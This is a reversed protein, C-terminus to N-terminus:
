QYSIDNLYFTVPQGKSAATWAFGTIIDTMNKGALSISYPKWQKTLTVNSLSGSASDHNPKGAGILGFLFSVVEGGKAGRAWFTLKKAGTLNLGGAATGWDNAPDQWVVGGWGKSAKYEVQLSYKGGHPDVSSKPNMVIASTNGMYGSSIFPSHAMGNNYIVVPLKAKPAAEASALGTGLTLVLLGATGLLNQSKM